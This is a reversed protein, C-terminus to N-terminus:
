TASRSRGPARERRPARPRPRGGEPVPVAARAPAVRPQLPDRLRDPRRVVRPLQPLAPAGGGERGRVPEAPEARRERRPRRERRSRSGFMEGSSAQYFRTAPATSASRTSCTSSSTRTRSGPRARTPSRPPRRQERGRPQLAGRAPRRRRARRLPGPDRLDRRVAICASTAASCGGRRREVDRVAAHVTWGDALLRRVLYYGDQGPPAPSSRRARSSPAACRAAQVTAKEPRTVTTRKVQAPWRTSMTSRTRAARARRREGDVDVLERGREVCGVAAREHGRDVIGAVEGRERREDLQVADPEDDREGVEVVPQEGRM